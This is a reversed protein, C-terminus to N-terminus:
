FGTVSFSTYAICVRIYNRGKLGFGLKLMVFDLFNWLVHDYAKMMEVKFM